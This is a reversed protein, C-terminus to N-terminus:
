KIFIVITSFTHSSYVKHLGRVVPPVYIYGRANGARDGSIFSIKEIQKKFSLQCRRVVEVTSTPDCESQKASCKRVQVFHIAFFIPKKEIIVLKSTM